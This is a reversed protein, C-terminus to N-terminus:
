KGCRLKVLDEAYGYIHLGKSEVVMEGDEVGIENSMYNKLYQIGALNAPLGGWLDWSRFYVFFHLKNDQIRTDIHRLCPPDVLLLDDPNGVQLILQNNRHGSTKYKNIVHEIQNIFLNSNDALLIKDDYKEVNVIEHKKEDRKEKIFESVNYQTLREGYTYSENAMKTPTMLYEIYSRDYNKGGFIYDNEVPPPIDLGPPIVPLIPEGWPCKIQGIFYDFELRMQGAYSGEDIKFRKGNDIISYIAQNRLYIKRM